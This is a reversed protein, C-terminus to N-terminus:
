NIMHNLHFCNHEQMKGIFKQIKVEKKRHIDTFCVFFVYPIGGTTGYTKVSDTKYM